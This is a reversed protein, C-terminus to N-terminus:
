FVISPIVCDQQCHVKADGSDSPKGDVDLKVGNLPGLDCQENRDTDAKGDGCFHPRTCSITCGTDGYKAGNNKGEDCEEPGNVISDGCFTGWKCQTNCGGYATDSNQDGNDCEEEAVPVGDGCTPHCTTSAANFGSLTLKYSSSTTQREAQFVAVEYAKGSVLGLGSATTANIIVQGNVPTHIGGLDVALKKNIFVWVDDDGTFDLTYTKAKDYIFWYRVESTFSFNHKREVGNADVDVPWRATADYVPPIQAKSFEAAPTFTDKDVPFFLPNGDMLSVIYKAKYTTGELYCNVRTLGKAEQKQCDTQGDTTGADTSGAQYKFTCPIPDGLDDLMEDGKQGCWDAITTVPWQEGNEGYRNVYAGKGNNWLALKAGTAHNVGSTNRYWSAFTDKSEVNANGGIGTYVPKGDADLDKNVMGTFAKDRGTAGPEFDKPTKARFDRYVVPVLM